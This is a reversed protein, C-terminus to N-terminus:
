LCSGVQSRKWKGMDPVMSIEKKPVMFTTNAEPAEDEPSSGLFILVTKKVKINTEISKKLIVIQLDNWNLYALPYNTTLKLSELYTFETVM